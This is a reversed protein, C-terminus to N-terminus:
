IYVSFAFLICLSLLVTGPERHKVTVKYYDTMSEVTDKMKYQMKNKLYIM